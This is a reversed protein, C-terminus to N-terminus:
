VKTQFCHQITKSKFTTSISREILKHLTIKKQFWWMFHWTLNTRIKPIQFTNSNHWLILACFVYARILYFTLFYLCFCMLKVRKNWGLELLGIDHYVTWMSSNILIYIIASLVLIHNSESKKLWAETHQDCHHELYCWTNQVHGPHLLLFTYEPHLSLNHWWLAVLSDFLYPFDHKTKMVAQISFAINCTIGKM